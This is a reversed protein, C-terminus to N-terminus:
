SIVRLIQLSIGSIILLIIFPAMFTVSFPNFISTGVFSWLALRPLFGVLSLGVFPAIKMETAGYARSVTSVPVFPIFRLVVLMWKNGDGKFDMFDTVSKSKSMIKHANGGGYKKGWLFKIVVLLAFGLANIGVAVPASFVMGSSIFLVSFPIIPVVSKFIFLTIIMCFAALKNYQAIFFEVREFWANLDQLSKQFEPLTFIFTLVILVVAGCFCAISSRKLYKDRKVKKNINVNKM